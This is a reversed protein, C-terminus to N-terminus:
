VSLFRPSALTVPTGPRPVISPVRPGLLGLTPILPPTHPPPAKLLLLLESLARMKQAKPAGPSPPLPGQACTVWPPGSILCGGLLGRAGRGDATAEGTVEWIDPLCSAHSDWLRRGPEVGEDLRRGSSLAVLWRDSGTGWSPAPYHPRDGPQQKCVRGEAGQDGVPPHCGQGSPARPRQGSSAVAQVMDSATAEPVLEDQGLGKKETFSSIAAQASPRSAGRQLAEDLISEASTTSNCVLPVPLFPGCSM